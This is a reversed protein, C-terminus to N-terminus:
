VNVVLLIFCLCMSCVRSVRCVWSFCLAHVLASAEDMGMCLWFISVNACAVFECCLIFAASTSPVYQPVHRRWAQAYGAYHFMLVHQLSVVGSEGPQLVLCTGLRKGQGHRHVALMNFYQCM